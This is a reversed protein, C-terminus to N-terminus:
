RWSWYGPRGKRHLRQGYLYLAALGIGCFVATQVLLAVTSDVVTGFASPGM